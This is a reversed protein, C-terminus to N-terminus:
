MFRVKKSQKEGTDLNSANHEIQQSLRMMVLHKQCCRQYKQWWRRTFELTNTQNRAQKRIGKLLLNKEPLSMRSKNKQEAINKITRLLMSGEKSDQSGHYGGFDRVTDTLPSPLSVVHPPDDSDKVPIEGNRLIALAASVISDKEQERKPESIGEINWGDHCQEKEKVMANGAYVKENGVRVEDHSWKSKKEILLNFNEEELTSVKLLVDQYKGKLVLLGVRVQKWQDAIPLKRNQDALVDIRQSLINQQATSQILESKTINHASVEMTLKKYIHYIETKIVIIEHEILSRYREIKDAVTNKVSDNVDDLEKNIAESDILDVINQFLSMLKKEYNIIKEDSSLEKDFDSRNELQRDMASINPRTLSHVRNDVFNNEIRLSAIKDDLSTHDTNSNM